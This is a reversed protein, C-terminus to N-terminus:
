KNKKKKGGFFGRKRADLEYQELEEYTPKISTKGVDESVKVETIDKGQEVGRQKEIEGLALSRELPIGKAVISLFEVDFVLVSNSPILGLIAENEGYALASPIIFTAKAGEKLIRIGEDLGKIAIGAEVPFELPEKNLESSGFLKGDLLKGTYNIRVVDMASPSEGVGEETVVFWVGSSTKRAKLGNKAIYEAILKADKKAQALAIAEKALKIQNLTQIDVVKITYTIISNPEIFIPREKYLEDMLVESDVKFVVSDNTYLISLMDQLVGRSRYEYNAKTNAEAIQKTIPKGSYTSHIVSDKSNKIVLHFTVFDNFVIKAVRGQNQRALFTYNIGERLKGSQAQLYQFDFVSLITFVLVFIYKM